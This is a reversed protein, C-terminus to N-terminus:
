MIVLHESKDLSSDYVIKPSTTSATERSGCLSLSFHCLHIGVHFDLAIIVLITRLHLIVLFFDIDVKGGRDAVRAKDKRM